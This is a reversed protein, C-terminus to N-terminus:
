RGSKARNVSTLTVEVALSYSIATSSLSSRLRTTTAEECDAM